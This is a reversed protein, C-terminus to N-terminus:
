QMSKYPLSDMALVLVVFLFYNVNFTTQLTFILTEGRTEGRWFCFALKINSGLDFCIAAHSISVSMSLRGGCGRSYTSLIGEVELKVQDDLLDSTEL